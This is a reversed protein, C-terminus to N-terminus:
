ESLFEKVAIDDSLDIGAAVVGAQVQELAAEYELSGQEDVAALLLQIESLAM